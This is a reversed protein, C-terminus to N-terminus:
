QAWNCLNSSEEGSGYLKFTGRVSEEGVLDTILRLVGVLAFSCLMFLLLVLYYTTSLSLM